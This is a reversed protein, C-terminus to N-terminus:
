GGRDGCIFEAQSWGNNVPPIWFHPKFMPGLPGGAGSEDGWRGNWALWSQKLDTPLIRIEYGLEGTVDPVDRGRLAWAVGNGHFQDQKDFSKDLSVGYKSRVWQAIPGGGGAEIYSAHRNRAVYVSPWLVGNAAACSEVDQLFAWGSEHAAYGMQTPVTATLLDDPYLDAFWLQVGEWDGEHTWKGAGAKNYLYFFWYQVLTGGLEPPAEAVRAYVVRKDSRRARSADDNPLNLYSNQGNHSILDALGYTRPGKSGAQGNLTYHLTSLEVMLEVPVPFYEEDKEFLIVPAFREVIQQHLGSDGIREYEVELQYDGARSGSASVAFLWYSGPELRLGFTAPQLGGSEGNAQTIIANGDGNAARSGSLSLWTGGEAETGALYHYQGGADTLFLYPAFEDSILKASVHTPHDLTFGYRDAPRVRGGPLGDVQCNTDLRAPQTQRVGSTSTSRTVHFLQRPEPCVAAATPTALDEPIDLQGRDNSGWCEVAGDTSVACTHYTGATVSTFRGVPSTAQGSDNWGWCRVEGDTTLACAHLAGAAVQTFRGSPANTQGEDNGGWCSVANSTTVGCTFWAGSSVQMFRGAPASAQGNENGGWCRVVGDSRLGCTHWGGGSVQTFRGNPVSTQGRHNWGWCRTQGGTTIACTHASANVHTFEGGQAVPDGLVTQGWCRLNGRETIACVHSTGASVQTFLGQPANTQGDDNQGWCQVDGAGTVACTYHAGADLSRIATLGGSADGSAGGEVVVTLRYTGAEPNYKTAEIRYTGRDLTQRIRANLSDGGDDDSAVEAGSADVLRLYPDLDSVNELDIQVVSRETLTFDYTAVWRGNGNVSTVCSGEHLVDTRVGRGAM